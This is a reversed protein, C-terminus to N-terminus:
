VEAPPGVGFFRVGYKLHLFNCFCENKIFIACSLFNIPVTHVLSLYFLCKRLLYEIRNRLYVQDYGRSNFVKVKSKKLLTIFILVFVSTGYSKFLLSMQVWIVLSYAKLFLLYSLMPLFSNWKIIHM